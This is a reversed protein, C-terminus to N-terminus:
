YIKFNISISISKEFFNLSNIFHLNFRKLPSFFFFYINFLLNKIRSVSSSTSSSKTTEVSSSSFSSRVKFTSPYLSNTVENAKNINNGNENENEDKIVEIIPSKINISNTEDYNLENIQSNSTHFSNNQDDDEDDNLKMKTLIDSCSRKTLEENVTPDQKLQESM